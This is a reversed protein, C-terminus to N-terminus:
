SQQTEAPKLQYRKLAELLDNAPDSGKSEVGLRESPEGRGVRAFRGISELAQVLASVNMVSEPDKEFQALLRAVNMELLKLVRDALRAERQVARNNLRLREQADKTALWEEYAAIRTSWKFEASLHGIYSRSYGLRMALDRLSRKEGLGRFCLYIKFELSSEDELPRNWTADSPLDYRM